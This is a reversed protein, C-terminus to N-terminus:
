SGGGCRAAPAKLHRSRTRGSNHSRCRRPSSRLSGNGAAGTLTPGCSLAELAGSALSLSSIAVKTPSLGSAAALQTELQPASLRPTLPAFVLVRHHHSLVPIPHGRRQAAGNHLAQLAPERASLQCQPSPGADGIAGKDSSAADNCQSQPQHPGPGRKSRDMPCLTGRVATANQSLPATRGRKLVSRTINTTSNVRRQRM